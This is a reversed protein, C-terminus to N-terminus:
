HNSPSQLSTARMSRPSSDKNLQPNITAQRNGTVRIKYYITSLFLSQNDIDNQKFSKKNLCLLIALTMSPSVSLASYLLDIKDIISTM